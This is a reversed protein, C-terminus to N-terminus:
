EYRLAILPDVRTARRAPVYAALAAVLIMSLFATGFSFVDFRGVGFLLSRILSTVGLSAIVGVAAGIAGLRTGEWVVMRWVATPQAGLAMRIGLERVRQQVNHNVLGFTGVASLFLAVGGFASILSVLFRSSSMDRDLLSEVTTVSWVPQDKDVSWVASRISDSLHMPDIATRVMLTGFIGPVQTYSFYIQPRVVEHRSIQKTDGVVGVIVAHKLNPSQGDTVQSTDTFQIEKGLPEKDPLFESVFTNSVIVAIESHADDSDTFIRGRLFPIQATAFYSPSVLNTLATFDAHHPASNGPLQFAIEGWNGSFPLAQVYAASVVGPVNQLKEQVQRHFNAQSEATPYKNRPVRYEMSLLHDTRFGAGTGALAALSKLLMGSSVLLVVALATQLVVFASRLWSHTRSDTQRVGSNLASGADTKSFRWAPATGFLIGAIMAAAATFLLARGDLIEPGGLDLGSPSIKRIVGLMQVAALVGLTGGTMAILMSECFFQRFLRGRSAGLAARVAIEKQRSIGRALLLNALNACVILLVLAVSGVLMLLPARMEGRMIQRLTEIKIHKGANTEPFERAMNAAIADLDATARSRSTGDKLRGMMGMTKARRDMTYAPHHQATVYVGAPVLKELNEPVVGIVSYSESNIIIQRGLLNADGNFRNKWATYGLIAVYASGPQDEGPVFTRGLVPSVGMMQFYNDSVFGGILREPRDRGTLNVSQMMWLSIQQFSHQQRRYDEFDGVSVLFNENTATVERINMLQEPRSLGWTPYLAAMFTSFIATNAGVGLAITLVAVLTFTPSKRLARAGYRLDQLITETGRWWRVQLVAERTQQLGGFEILAQRRAQDERMGSTINKRVESEIHFSFEDRLDADDKKRALLSRLFKLGFM